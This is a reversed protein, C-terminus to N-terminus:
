RRLAEVGEPPLETSFVTGANFVLSTGPAAMALVAQFETELAHGHEPARKQFGLARDPHTFVCLAPGGHAGDICLPRLGGMGKENRPPETVLITIREKILIGEFEEPGIKEKLFALFAEELKNKPKTGILLLNHFLGM